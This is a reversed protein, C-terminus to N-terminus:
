ENKVEKKRGVKSALSSIGVLFAYVTDLKEEILEVRELLYSVHARLKGTTNSGFKAVDEATEGITDMVRFSTEKLKEATEKVEESLSHAIDVMEQTKYVMDKSISVYPELEKKIEKVKKNLDSYLKMMVFFAVLGVFALGVYVAAIVVLSITAVM